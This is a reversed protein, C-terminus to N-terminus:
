SASGERSWCSSMSFQNKTSVPPGPVQTAGDADSNMVSVGLERHKIRTAYQPTPYIGVLNPKCKNHGSVLFNLLAENDDMFQEVLRGNVPM